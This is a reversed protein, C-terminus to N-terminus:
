WGENLGMDRDRLSHPAKEMKDVDHPEQGNEPNHNGDARWRTLEKRKKEKRGLWGLGGLMPGATKDVAEHCCM